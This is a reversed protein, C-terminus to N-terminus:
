FIVWHIEDYVPKRISDIATNILRESAVMSMAPLAMLRTRMTTKQIDIHIRAEEQNLLGVSKMKQVWAVTSLLSSFEGAIYFQVQNKDPIM